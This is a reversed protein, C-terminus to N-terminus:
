GNQIREDPGSPLATLPQCIGHKDDVKGKGKRKHTDREISPIQCLTPPLLDCCM